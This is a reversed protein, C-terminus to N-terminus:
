ERTRQSVGKIGSIVWGHRAVTLVSGCYPCVASENVDVSAACNPCIITTMAERGTTEGATRTLSYEYTMYKVATQSGKILAGTKDDLTYDKIRVSVEAVIEDVKGTQRYGRFRVRLVEIDEVYNTRHGLIYQQVQREMQAYFTDSLVPRLQRLDKATWAAQLQVYWDAIRRALAEGDFDPDVVLYERMPRLEDRSTRISQSPDGYGVPRAKGSGTGSTTSRPAHQAGSAKENRKNSILIAGYVGVCVIILVIWIWADSDDDADAAIEGSSAADASEVSDAAPTSETSGTDAIGSADHDNGDTSAGSDPAANGSGASGPGGPTAGYGYGNGHNQESNSYSETTAADGSEVFEDSHEDIYNVIGYLLLLWDLDSQGSGSPASWSDYDYDDSNWDDTGSDDYSWDDASYDDYSYNDSGWDDTSYDYSWDDSSYDDGGGFDYDSDGSYDGFDAGLHEGGFRARVAWLTAFMILGVSIIALAKRVRRM